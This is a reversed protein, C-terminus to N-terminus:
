AGYGNEAGGSACDTACAAPDAFTAETDVPFEALGQVGPVGVSRGSHQRNTSSKGRGKAMAAKFVEAIMLPISKNSIFNSWDTAASLHVETQEICIL